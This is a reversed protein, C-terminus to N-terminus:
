QKTSNYAGYSQLKSICYIEYSSPTYLLLQEMLLLSLVQFITQEVDHM